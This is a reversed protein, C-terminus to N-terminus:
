FDYDKIRQLKKLQQEKELDKLCNLIYFNLAEAIDTSDLMIRGKDMVLTRTAVKLIKRVNNSVFIVAKGPQKVWEKLHDYCKAKFVSDGVALAEDIIFLNPDTAVAIAYALRARMGSSYNGFPQDISEELESFAIIFPIRETITEEDMGFMAGKLYINERGTYLSEMGARLAFVATTTLDQKTIINGIDNFYINAVIRMLSTKGSGNAGVIGLIEGEKLSFNIDSLAWFENPRLTKLHSDKGLITKWIDQIGYIMNHRINNCFKKSLGEVRLLEEPLSSPQNM